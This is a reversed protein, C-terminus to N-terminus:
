GFWTVGFWGLTLMTFGDGTTAAVALVTSSGTGNVLIQIAPNPWPIKPLLKHHMHYLYNNTPFPNPNPLYVTHMYYLENSAAGTRTPVIRVTMRTAGTGRRLQIIIDNVYYYTGPHTMPNGFYSSNSVNLSNFNITVWTNPPINQDSLYFMNRIRRSALVLTGIRVDVQNGGTSIVFTTPDSTLTRMNFNNVASITAFVNGTGGGVNNGDVLSNPFVLNGVVNLTATCPTLNNTRVLCMDVTGNSIFYNGVVGGEPLQLVDGSCDITCVSLIGTLQVEDVFLTGPITLSLQNGCVFVTSVCVTQDVQVQNAAVVGGGTDLLLSGCYSALTCAFLSGVMNLDGSIVVTPAIISLTTACGIGCVDIQDALFTGAFDFSGADMLLTPNSCVITCANLTNVNHFAGVILTSSYVTGAVVTPADIFLNNVTFITSLVITSAVVVTPTAVVLSPANITLTGDCVVTCVLVAPIDSGEVRLAGTIHADCKVLLDGCVDVHNAITDSATDCPTPLKPPPAVFPRYEPLTCSTPVFLPQPPCVAPPLSCVDRTKTMDKTTTLLKARPRSM